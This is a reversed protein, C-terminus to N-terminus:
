HWVNVVRVSIQSSTSGCDTKSFCTSYDRELNRVTDLLCRSANACPSKIWRRHFPLNDDMNERYWTGIRKFKFYNCVQRNIHSPKAQVIYLTRSTPRTRALARALVVCMRLDGDYIVLM